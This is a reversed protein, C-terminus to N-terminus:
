GGFTARRTLAPALAAFSSFGAATLTILALTGANRALVTLKLGRVLLIVAHVKALHLALRGTAGFALRGTTGFALRGTAGFALARALETIELRRAFTAAAPFAASALRFTAQLVV